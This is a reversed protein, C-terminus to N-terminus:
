KRIIIERHEGTAQFFVLFRANPFLEVGYAIILGSEIKAKKKKSRKTVVSSIIENM